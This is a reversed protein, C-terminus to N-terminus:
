YSSSSSEFLDAELPAAVADSLPAADDIADMAMSKHVREAEMDTDTDSEHGLVCM